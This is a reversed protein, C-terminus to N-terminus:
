DPTEQTLNERRYEIAETLYAGFLIIWASLYVWTLFAIIAGLSGYILDYRALGSSLFWSFGSTALGWALSAVLAGWFAAWGHVRTSPILRYLLWILIFRVFYPWIRSYAGQLFSHLWPLQEVSIIRTFLSLDIMTTYIISLFMFVALLVVMTIAILRQQVLNRYRVKKWARDLNLALSNFAGSGAWLFGILAIINFTTRAQLVQEVQSIIAQPSLPLDKTLETLRDIVINPDLFYSLATITFILLPFISFITYYSITAAAEPGRNRDFRQFARAIMALLGGTWADLRSYFERIKDNSM